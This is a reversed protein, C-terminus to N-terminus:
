LLFKTFFRESFPHLTNLFLILLNFLTSNYTVHMDVVDILQCPIILVYLCIFVRELLSLFSVTHTLGMLAFHLLANVAGALLVSQSLQVLNLITFPVRSLGRTIPFLRPVRSWSISRCCNWTGRRRFM